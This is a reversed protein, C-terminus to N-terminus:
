VNGGIHLRNISDLAGRQDNEKKNLADCIIKAQDEEFCECMTVNHKRFPEIQKTDIITYKFCCHNSVSEPIIKYRDEM